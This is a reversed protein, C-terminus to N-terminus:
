EGEPPQPAYGEVYWDGTYAKEVDMEEMGISEYYDGVTIIKEDNISFTVSPDGIGVICIKTDQNIIKAYKKM